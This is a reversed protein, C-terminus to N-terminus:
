ISKFYENEIKNILLLNQKLINKRPMERVVVSGTCYKSFRHPQIGMQKMINCAPSYCFHGDRKIEAIALFPFETGTGSPDSFSLGSDITIRERLVTNVLTIRFFENNLVQGLEEAGYPLHKNIFTGSDSFSDPDGEVRWKITRNKNTKKKIELFSRGTIQYKRYRVKYRNLKGRMQQNYFLYDPTDLYVTNYQFNRKSDIELILYKSSLLDLMAPLRTASFVYKTEMRNMLTVEDMEDLGISNFSNLISNIEAGKM